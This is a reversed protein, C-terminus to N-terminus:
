RLSRFLKERRKRLKDSGILQESIERFLRAENGGSQMRTVANEAQEFTPREGLLWQKATSSDWQMAEAPSGPLARRKEIFSLMAALNEEAIPRDALAIWLLGILGLRARSMVSLHENVEPKEDTVFQQLFRIPQSIRVGTHHDHM